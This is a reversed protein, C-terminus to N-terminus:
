ALAGSPRETVIDGKKASEIWKERAQQLTCGTSAVTTKMLFEDLTEPTVGYRDLLRQYNAPLGASKFDTIVGPPPAVPGNPAAGSRLVTGSAVMEDLRRQAREAVIEDLHNARVMGVVKTINDITRYQPDMQNIYLDIEPGWKSFDDAYDRRVVERATTGLQAAMHQLAPAFETQRAHQLMQQAAANPDTLWLDQNPM